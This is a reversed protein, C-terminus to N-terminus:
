RPKLQQSLIRLLALLYLSELKDCKRGAIEEQIGSVDGANFEEKIEACRM